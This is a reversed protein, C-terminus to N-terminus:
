FLFLTTTSVSSFSNKKTYSGILPPPTTCGSGGFFFTKGLNKILGSNFVLHSLSFAFNKSIDM